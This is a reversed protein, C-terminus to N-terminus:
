GFLRSAIIGCAVGVNLSEARGKRPITIVESALQHLAPDVGHSESGMLLLGNEISAVEAINRGQMEASFVPLKIKQAQLMVSMLDVSRIPVRFLSGMTSQVVKPAWADTCGEGCLVGDLGFWDAIRILTGMNGPDNIRDLAIYKGAQLSWERTQPIHGVALVKNPTPLQSLKELERDSVEAVWKIKQLAALEMVGPQWDPTHWVQEVSLASQLLESVAKVGEVLFMGSQERHKKITLSSIFKQHNKSFM